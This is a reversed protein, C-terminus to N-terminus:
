KLIEKSNIIYDIDEKSYGAIHCRYELEEIPLGHPNNPLSWKCSVKLIIVLWMRYQVKQQGISRKGVIGGGKLFKHQLSNFELMHLLFPTILTGPWRM